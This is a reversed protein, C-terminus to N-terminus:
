QDQEGTSFQPQFLSLLLQEQNSNTFADIIKQLDYKGDMIQYTFKVKSCHRKGEIRGAKNRYLRDIYCTVKLNFALKEYLNEKSLTVIPPM